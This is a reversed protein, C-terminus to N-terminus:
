LNNDHVNDFWEVEIKKIPSILFVLILTKRDFVFLMYVNWLLMGAPCLLELLRM